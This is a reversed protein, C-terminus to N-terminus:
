AGSSGSGRISHLHGIQAMKLESSKNDAGPIRCTCCGKLLVALLMIEHLLDLPFQHWGNSGAQGLIAFPKRTAKKSTQSNSYYGCQPREVRGGKFGRVIDGLIGS